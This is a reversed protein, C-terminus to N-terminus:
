LPRLKGRSVESALPLVGTAPGTMYEVQGWNEPTFAELLTFLERIRPVQLMSACDSPCEGTRICHAVIAQSFAKVMRGFQERPMLDAGSMWSGYRRRMDFTYLDASIRVSGLGLPKGMGAKM